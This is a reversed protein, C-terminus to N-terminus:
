AQEVVLIKAKNDSDRDVDMPIAKLSTGTLTLEAGAVGNIVPYYKYTKTATAAATITANTGGMVVKATCAPATTPTVANGSTDVCNFSLGQYVVGFASIPNSQDDVLPSSLATNCYIWYIENVSWIPAPLPRSEERIFLKQKDFDKFISQCHRGTLDVFSDDIGYGSVEPKLLTCGGQLCRGMGEHILIVANADIYQELAGGANKCAGSYVILNLKQGNFVARGCNNAGEIDGFDLESGNSHIAEPYLKFASDESLYQWATAGMLLDTAKHGHKQIENLMKCVDKYPTAGNQGWAIAPVYHNNCGQAPDYFKCQIHDDDAGVTNDHPQDFEIKGEKLVLSCLLEIARDTRMALRASKLALLNQYAQARDVDAGMARCLREFLVRDLGKPDVEDEDGVRPPIVAEARWPTTNGNKYTTTLFVGKALDAGDFDFLVEKGMFNNEEGPQFYRTSLLVSDTVEVSFGEAQATTSKVNITQAM